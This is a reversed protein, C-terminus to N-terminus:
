LDYQPYMVKLKMCPHCIFWESGHVKYEALKNIDYSDLTDYLNSIDCTDM